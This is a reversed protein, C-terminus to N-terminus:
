SFGVFCNLERLKADADFNDLDFAACNAQADFSGRRDANEATFQKFRYRVKFVQWRHQIDNVLGSLVM